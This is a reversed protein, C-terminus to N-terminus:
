TDASGPSVEVVLPDVNSTIVTTAGSYCSLASDDVEDSEKLGQDAKKIPSLPRESGLKMM